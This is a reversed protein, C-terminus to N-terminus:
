KKVSIMEISFWCVAIAVLKICEAVAFFVPKIEVGAFGLIINGVILLAFIGGSVIFIIKKVNEKVEFM